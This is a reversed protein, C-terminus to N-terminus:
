PNLQLCDQFKSTSGSFPTPTFLPGPVPSRLVRASRSWLVRNCTYCNTNIGLYDSGFGPISRILTSIWKYAYKCVVSWCVISWITYYVIELIYTLTMSIWSALRAHGKKVEYALDKISQYLHMHRVLISLITIPYSRSLSNPLYM